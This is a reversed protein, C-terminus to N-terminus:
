TRRALEALRSLARKCVPVYGAAYLPVEFGATCAEGRPRVHHGTAPIRAVDWEWRMNESVTVEFPVWLGGPVQVRGTTGRSIYRSSSEVDCVSPGWDPWQETDVLLDWVQESPDDIHQSVVLRRGSPTREVTTGM